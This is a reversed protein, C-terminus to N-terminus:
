TPPNRRASSGSAGGCPPVVPGAPGAAPGAPSGCFRGPARHARRGRLAVIKSHVGRAFGVLQGRGPVPCGRRRGAGAARRPAPDRDDRHRRERDLHGDARAVAVDTVLEVEKGGPVVQGEAEHVLRRQGRQQGAEALDHPLAGQGPQPHQRREREGRKDHRGGRHAPHEARAPGPLQEGREGRRGAPFVEARHVLQGGGRGVEHEPRGGQQQHRLQEGALVRPPPQRDARARPIALSALHFMAKRSAASAAPNRAVSARRRSRLRYRSAPHRIAAARAAGSTIQCAACPQGLM